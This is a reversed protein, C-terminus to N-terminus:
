AACADRRICRQEAGRHRRRLPGAGAGRHAAVAGGARPCPRELPEHDPQRARPHALGRRQPTKPKGDKDFVAKGDKDREQIQKYKVEWGPEIDFQTVVPGEHFQSSARM